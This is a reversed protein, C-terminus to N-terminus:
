ILGAWGVKAGPVAWEECWSADNNSEWWDMSLKRKPAESQQDPIKWKFKERGIGEVTYEVICRVAWLWVTHADQIQQLALPVYITLLYAVASLFFLGVAVTADDNYQGNYYYDMDTPPEFLGDNSGALTEMLSLNNEDQQQQQKQIEEALDALEGDQDLVSVSLPQGQLRALNNSQLPTFGHSSAFLSVITALFLSVKM